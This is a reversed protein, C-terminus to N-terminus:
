SAAAPAHAPDDKPHVFGPGGKGASASPRASFNKYWRQLRPFDDSIVYNFKEVGASLVAYLHCDAVTPKAGAVFPYDGMRVEITHLNNDFTPKVAAAVKPDYAFGRLSQLFSPGMHLYYLRCLVSQDAVVRELSRVKARELPTTGIMPPDPYIEELYEVIAASEPLFTGDDLELLPIKGAPNKALYEPTKIVNAAGVLDVEEINDLGKEALYIKVRRTNASMAAGYLKM